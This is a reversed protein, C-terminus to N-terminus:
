EKKFIISNTMSFFIWLPFLSLWLVIKISIGLVQIPFIVWLLWIGWILKGLLGTMNKPHFNWWELYPNWYHSYNGASNEYHLTDSLANLIEEAWSYELFLLLLRTWKILQEKLITTSFQM